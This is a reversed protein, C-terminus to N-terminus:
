TDLGESECINSKRGWTHVLMEKYQHRDKSVFSSTSPLFRLPRIGPLRWQSAFCTLERKLFFFLTNNCHSGFAVPSNLFTYEVTCSAVWFNCPDNAKIWICDKQLYGGSFWFAWSKLVEWPSEEMLSAPACQRFRQNQTLYKRSAEVSGERTM